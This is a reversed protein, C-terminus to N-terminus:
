PVEVLFSHSQSEPFPHDEVITATITGGDLIEVRPLEAIFVTFGDLKTVRETYAVNGPVNWFVVLDDDDEDRAVIQATNLTDILLLTSPNNEPAIIEPPANM